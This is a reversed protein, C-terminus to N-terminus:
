EVLRGADIAVVRDAHEITSLRHAIVLTTRGQMLRELAEQVARESEADLASTAEDLILIPPNKLLTRAIAVRQKEGGSLKLGREGVQTSLGEPLAEIFKGLEDPTTTVPEAGIASLWRKITGAVRDALRAVPSRQDFLGARWLPLRPQADLGDVREAGRQRALHRHDRAEARLRIAHADVSRDILIVGDRGVIVGQQGLQCDSAPCPFFGDTAHSAGEFFVNNASKFRRNWKHFRDHLLWIKNCPPEVRGVQIGVLLQIRVRLKLRRFIQHQAGRPQRRFEVAGPLLRFEVGYSEVAAHRIVNTVAETVALKLDYIDEPEFGALRGVQGAVLRALMVYEASSPLVLSVPEHGGVDGKKTEAIEREM